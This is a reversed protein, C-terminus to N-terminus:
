LRSIISKALISMISDLWRVVFASILSRPHEPQDARKNNAYPTFCIKELCPEYFIHSRLVESVATSMDEAFVIRHCATGNVKCVNSEYRMESQNEGTSFGYCKWDPVSATFAMTMMSWNLVGLSFTTFAFLLVQFLGFDGTHKIIDGLKLLEQNDMTNAQKTSTSQKNEM